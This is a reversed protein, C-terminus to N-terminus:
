ERQIAVRRMGSAPPPVMGSGKLKTTGNVVVGGGANEGIM